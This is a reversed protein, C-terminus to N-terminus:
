RQNRAQLFTETEQQRKRAAALAAEDRDRNLERAAAAKQALMANMKARHDADALLNYVALENGTGTGNHLTVLKNLTRHLEAVSESAGGFRHLTAQMGALTEAYQNVQNLVEARDASTWDIVYGNLYEAVKLGHRFLTPLTPKELTDGNGIAGNAVTLTEQMEQLAHAIETIIEYGTLDITQNILAQKAEDTRLMDYQMKLGKNATVLKTFLQTKYAFHLTTTDLSLPLANADLLTAYAAAAAAFEAYRPLLEDYRKQTIM